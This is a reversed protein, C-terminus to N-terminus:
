TNTDDDSAEDAPTLPHSVSDVPVVCDPADPATDTSLPADVAPVAPLTTTDVPAAVPPAAPDTDTPTPDVFLPDPPDTDTLEPDDVAVPDTPPVRSICAPDPSEVPPRTLMEPPEVEDPTPPKTLM